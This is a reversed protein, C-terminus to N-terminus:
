ALGIRFPGFRRLFCTLEMRMVDLAGDVDSESMSGEEADASPDAVSGGSGSFASAVWESSSISRWIWFFLAYGPEFFM